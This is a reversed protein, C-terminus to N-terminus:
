SYTYNTGTTLGEMVSQYTTQRVTLVVERCASSEAKLLLREITSIVMVDTAIELM